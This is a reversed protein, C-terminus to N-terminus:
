TRLDNWIAQTTPSDSLSPWGQTRVINKHVGARALKDEVDSLMGTALSLTEMDIIFYFPYSTGKYSQGYTLRGSAARATYTLEAKYTFILPEGTDIGDHRIRGQTLLFQGVPSRGPLTHIFYTDVSARDTFDVDRDSLKIIRM